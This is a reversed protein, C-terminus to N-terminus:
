RMVLLLLEDVWKGADMLELHGVWSNGHTQNLAPTQSMLSVAPSLVLFPVCLWQLIFFM